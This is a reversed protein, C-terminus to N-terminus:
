SPTNTTEPEVSAKTMSGKEVADENLDNVFVMQSAWSSSSFHAYGAPFFVGKRRRLKDGQYFPYCHVGTPIFLADFVLKRAIRLRHLLSFSFLSLRASMCPVSSM